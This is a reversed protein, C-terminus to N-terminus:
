IASTNILRKWTLSKEGFNILLGVQKHTAKLYNIVQKEMSKNIFTATKLELIIRDFCLFDARYYKDLKQGKYYIPLLKQDEFPIEEEIFERCLVEQYVSELFGSGLNRHVNMCVGIIKFTQDEYLLGSM